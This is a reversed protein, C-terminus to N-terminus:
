AVRMGELGGRRMTRSVSDSIVDDLDDVGLVDGQVTTYINLNVRSSRNNENAPVVKEGKHVLALMDRPVFDIGGAFGPIGASQLMNLQADSMWGYKVAQTLRWMGKPLDGTLTYMQYATTVMASGMTEWLIKAAGLPDVGPGLSGTLGEQFGAIDQWTIWSAILSDWMGKGKAMAANQQNVAATTSTISRVLGDQTLELKNNELGWDIINQMWDPIAEGYQTMTNYTDMLSVGFKDWAISQAEMVSLGNGMLYDGFAMMEGYLTSAQDQIGGLTGTMAEYAANYASVAEPTQQLVELLEKENMTLKETEFAWNIINQLWDPIQENYETMTNYTSLLTDGYKRWALDQADIVSLGNGMLYDGFAMMEGYVAEANPQLNQLSEAIGDYADQFAASSENLIEATHRSTEGLGRQSREAEDIERTFGGVDPRIERVADGFIRTSRGADDTRDGFERSADAGRTAQETLGLLEKIVDPIEVDLAQAAIVAESLAGGMITMIEENTAGAGTLYEIDESLSELAEGVKGPAARLNELASDLLNTEAAAVGSETSVGMLTTKWDPFVRRLEANQSFLEAFQENLLSYDGNAAAAAAAGFDHTQGFAELQSFSAILQDVTGALEAAPLLIDQFFKPSSTIDKRIGKLADKSLGVGAAFGEVIQSSVDIGFDRGVEAAANEWTNKTFLQRLVLGVAAAAGIGITWPNTFFAGLSAMGGGAAPATTPLMGPLGGALAPTAFPNAPGGGIGFLSGIGSLGGFGGAGSFGKSFGGGSLLSSIGSFIPGFVSETFYRSVSAGFDKLIDFISSLSFDWNKVMNGVAKAFDNNILSVQNSLAATVENTAGTADDAAGGLAEYHGKAAELSGSHEEEARTAQENKLILDDLAPNAVDSVVVAASEMAMAFPTIGQEELDRIAADAASVGITHERIADDAARTSTELLYMGNITKPLSDPGNLAIHAESLKIIKDGHVALIDNVPIGVGVLKELEASFQSAPQLLKNFSAVLKELEENQKKLEDTEEVIVPIVSGGIIEGRAFAANTAEINATSNAKIQRNYKETAESAAVIELKYDDLGMAVDNYLNATEVIGSNHKKHIDTLNQLEIKDEVLHGANTELVSNLLKMSTTLGDSSGAAVIFQNTLNAGVAGMQESLTNEIKKFAEETNGAANEMGVLAANMRAMGQETALLAVANFAEVSGFLDTQAQVNGETKEALDVLFGALGKSQMAALDFKIGMKAATDAAEKSPKAINAIVQKLASMTESTGVGSATLAAVIANLEEFGVGTAAATGIVRGFSSALEGVTTKGRKVTEFMIDSVYTVDESKMGYANIATTLVDVASKTDTLGAKAFKAAEGVFRVANAPEVGASLTQYLGQALNTSSGLSGGLQLLEERLPAIAFDGLTSVNAMELQFQMAEDTWGKIISVIQYAGFAVGLGGLIKKVNLMSKGMNDFGTSATKGTATATTGTGKLQQNFKGLADRGKKTDGSIVFILNEQM